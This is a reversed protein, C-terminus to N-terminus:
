RITEIFDTSFNTIITLFKDLDKVFNFESKSGGKGSMFMVCMLSSVHIFGCCLCFSFVDWLTDSIYQRCFGSVSSQRGNLKQPSYYKNIM